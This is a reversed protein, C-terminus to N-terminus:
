RRDLDIRDSPVDQPTGQIALPPVCVYSSMAPYALNAPGDIGEDRFGVGPQAFPIGRLRLPLCVQLLREAGRPSVSYAQTGFANLLRHLVRNGKYSRISETSHGFFQTVAKTFGYDVWLKLIPREYCYGWLIFDWAPEVTQILHTAINEFEDAVVIDDEFITIPTNERVAKQWLEIHSLACGLTGDSYPCDPTIIGNRILEERSRTAGDVASFRVVNNLQGNLREFHRLRATSRDLNILHMRPLM